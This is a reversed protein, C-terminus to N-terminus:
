VNLERETTIVRAARDTAVERGKNVDENAPLLRSDSRCVKLCGGSGRQSVKDNSKRQGKINRKKMGWRRSPIHYQERHIQLSFEARPSFVSWGGQTLCMGGGGGDALM